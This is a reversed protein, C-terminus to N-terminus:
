VDLAPQGPFNTLRYCDIVPKGEWMTMVGMAVIGNMWGYPSGGPAEFKINTFYEVDDQSVTKKDVVENAVGPGTRFIGTAQVLIYFGDDTRLTYNANLRWFTKQPNVVQAWDAGSKEVIIGQIRPGSVSGGHIPLVIRSVSTGDVGPIESIGESDMDAVIRYVFEMHPMRMPPVESGHASYANGPSPVHDHQAEM